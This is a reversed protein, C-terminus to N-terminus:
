CSTKKTLWCNNPSPLAWGGSSPVSATKRANGQDITLSLGELDTGALGDANITYTTDTLTCNIDFYKLGAPKPAVTGAVCAGSYKRNDQYYLEMKTKMALLNSSAEQLKGRVIYNSYIPLAIGALIAVIAVTVMLEILTFGTHRQM